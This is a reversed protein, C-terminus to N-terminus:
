TRRRPYAYAECAEALADDEVYFPNGTANEIFQGLRLEPVLLWAALVREMAKRKQEPTVARGEPASVGDGWAAVALAADHLRRAAVVAEKAKAYALEARYEANLAEALYANAANVLEEREENTV